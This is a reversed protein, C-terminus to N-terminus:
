DTRLAEIPDVRSARWAPVVSAFLAVVLLVVAVLGFIAPDRPSTDFLLAM